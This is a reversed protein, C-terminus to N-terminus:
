FLILNDVDDSALVAVSSKSGSLYYCCKTIIDYPVNTALKTYIGAAM